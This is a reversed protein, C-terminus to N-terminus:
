TKKIGYYISVIFLPICVLELIMIEALTNTHNEQIQDISPVTVNDGTQMGTPNQYIILNDLDRDAQILLIAVPMVLAISLFVAAAGFMVIRNM